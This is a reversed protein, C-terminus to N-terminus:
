FICNQHSFNPSRFIFYTSYLYVWTQMRFMHKWAMLSGLIDCTNPSFLGNNGWVTKRQQTWVALGRLYQCGIIKTHAMKVLFSFSCSIIDKAFSHLLIAKTWGLKLDTGCSWPFVESNVISRSHTHTLLGHAVQSGHTQSQAHLTALTPDDKSHTHRWTKGKAPTHRDHCVRYNSSKFNTCM